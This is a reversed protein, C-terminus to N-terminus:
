REDPSRWENVSDLVMRRATRARARPPCAVSQSSVHERKRSGRVRIVQPIFPCSSPRQVTHGKGTDHGRAPNRGPQSWLSPFTKDVSLRLFSRVFCRSEQVKFRSPQGCELRTRSREAVPSKTWVPTLGFGPARACTSHKTVPYASGRWRIAVTARRCTTGAWRRPTTFPPRPRCM